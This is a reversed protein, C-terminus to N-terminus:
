VEEFVWLTNGHYAREIEGASTKVLLMMKSQRFPSLLQYGGSPHARPVFCEWNNLRLAGAHVKGRIEKGDHSLYSRSRKNLFATYNDRCVCLFTNSANPGDEAYRLRLTKGDETLTIAKRTEKDLIMYSTDFWPVEGQAFPPSLRPSGFTDGQTFGTKPTFRTDSSSTSNRSENQGAHGNETENAKETHFDSAGSNTPQDQSLKSHEEGM